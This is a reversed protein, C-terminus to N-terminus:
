FFFPPSTVKWSLPVKSVKLDLRRLPCNTFLGWASLYGVGLQLSLILPLTLGSKGARRGHSKWGRNGAGGGGGGGYKREKTGLFLSFNNRGVRM